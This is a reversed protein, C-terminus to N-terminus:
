ASRMKLGRGLDLKGHLAGGCTVGNAQIEHSGDREKQAKPWLSSEGNNRDRIGEWMEGHDSALECVLVERNDVTRVGLLPVNKRSGPAVWGEGWNGEGARGVGGRVSKWWV